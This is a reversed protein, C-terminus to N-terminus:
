AAPEMSAQVHALHGGVVHRFVDDLTPRALSVSRTELGAAALRALVRPLAAGGDRVELRVRGGGEHVAALVAATRAGDPEDVEITLVDGGVTRKLEDATGEIRLQGAAVIGIRDALADAEELYQTTLLVAVGEARRRRVREWLEQRSIPDLGTTPEDLFVVRPHGTLALALDLRRRMGGSYTRLRRSGAEALDFEELLQSARTAAAARTMGLLRAHRVILDHGRAAADVGTEQLAVGIRRRVADPETVADHGAVLIRGADPALLTALVGITPSKGSGNPGLLAYIEGPGVHFSLGDVAPKATPAYRKVLESVEIAPESATPQSHM